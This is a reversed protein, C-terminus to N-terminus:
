PKKPFELTLGLAQIVKAVTSFSTRTEYKLSRYLAERSLGTKKAVKGMGYARGIAGLAEQILKFNGGRSACNLYLQYDEKDHLVEAADFDSFTLDDETLKIDDDKNM